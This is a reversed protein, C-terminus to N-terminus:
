KKDRWRTRSGFKVDMLNIYYKIHVFIRFEHTLTHQEPLTLFFTLIRHWQWM